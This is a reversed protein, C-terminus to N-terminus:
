RWSLEPGVTPTALAQEVAETLRRESAELIAHRVGEDLRSGAVTLPDRERREAIEDPDRFDDGKSHPSFRYTDLVLFFPNGTDRVHAVAAGAAEKVAAVDTTDLRNTEIGFAAARAQVDGALQLQSPTSQAYGNHEVVVLLPLRWLSAINLSEYVVGQGLTGDGVFVTTVAGSGREREGLAMGAALPVTSGLIGNSYFNGACLHQSGGKGGCVGGERGLVERLLGDVDDTFALYHGHCRHNSVIVDRERDLSAVVGVADAEQGICTHTTGGVKGAAFLELLTEEFRRILVMDAFLREPGAGNRETWESM